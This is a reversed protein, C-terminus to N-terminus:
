VRHVYVRLQAKTARKIMDDTGTSRGDWLALLQGRGIGRAHAVVYDAMEQNRALGAVKNFQSGDRRRGVVVWPADLNEWLAPFPKYPIGKTRAYGVGLMDPSREAMGSVVETITFGSADIAAYLAAMSTIGRSGAIITPYNHVVQDM